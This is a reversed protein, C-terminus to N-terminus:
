ALNKAFSCLPVCIRWCCHLCVHHEPDEGWKDKRVCRGGEQKRPTPLPQPLSPKKLRSSFHVDHRTLNSQTRLHSYLNNMATDSGHDHRYVYAPKFEVKKGLQHVKSPISERKKKRWRSYRYKKVKNGRNTGNSVVQRTCHLTSAM